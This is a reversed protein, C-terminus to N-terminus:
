ALAAAAAASTAPFSLPPVSRLPLPVSQSGWPSWVIPACNSHFFQGTPPPSRPSRPVLPVFHFPSSFPPISVADSNEIVGARREEKVREVTREVSKEEASPKKVRNSEKERETGLRSHIDRDAGIWEWRPFFVLIATRQAKCGDDRSGPRPAYCLKVSM